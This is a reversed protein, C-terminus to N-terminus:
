FIIDKGIVNLDAVCVLLMGSVIATTTIALHNLYELVLNLM